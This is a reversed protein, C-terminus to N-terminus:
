DKNWVKSIKCYLLVHGYFLGCYLKSCLDDSEEFFLFGFNFYFLILLCLAFTFM